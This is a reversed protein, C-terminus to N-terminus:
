VLAEVAEKTCPHCPNQESHAADTFWCPRCIAVCCAYVMSCIAGHGIPPGSQFDPFEGLASGEKQSCEGTRLNIALASRQERGQKKNNGKSTGKEHRRLRESQKSWSPVFHKSSVLTLCLSQPPTCACQGAYGQVM